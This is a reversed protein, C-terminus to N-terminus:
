GHGPYLLHVLRHLDSGTLTSFNYSSSHIPTFPWVFETIAPEGRFLKLALRISLYRLYLVPHVLPGVLNGFEVLSRIGNVEVM